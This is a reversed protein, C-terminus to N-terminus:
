QAAVSIVPDNSAASGVTIVVAFDGAPLSPVLVNAQALSVPGPTLGVYAVQAQQGGITVTVPVSSRSLPGGLPALQGTPVPNDLPGIGTFYVTITDGPVTPYASTNVRGDGNTVAARNIRVLFIGPAAVAVTISTATSTAGNNVVKVSATGLPVEFPLQANIQTPSM